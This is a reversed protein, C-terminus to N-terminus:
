RGSRVLRLEQEAREAIEAYLRDIQEQRNRDAMEARLRDLRNADMTRVDTQVMTQQTM